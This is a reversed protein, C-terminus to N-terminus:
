YYPSFRLTHKGKTRVVIYISPCFSLKWRLISYYYLLLTFDIQAPLWLPSYWVLYLVNVALKTKNPTERRISNSSQPIRINTNLLKEWQVISQTPTQQKRTQSSCYFTQCVVFTMRHSVCMYQIGKGSMEFASLLNNPMNWTGLIYASTNEM